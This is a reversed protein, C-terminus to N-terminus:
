MFGGAAGFGNLSCVWVASAVEDDCSLAGTVIDSAAGDAECVVPLAASLSLAVGAASCGAGPWAVSVGGSGFDPATFDTASSRAALLLSIAGDSFLGTSALGASATAGSM